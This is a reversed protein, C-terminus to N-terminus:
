SKPDGRAQMTEFEREVRDVTDIEHQIATAHLTLGVGGALALEELKAAVAAQNPRERLDQMWLQLRYVLAFHAGRPWCFAVRSQGIDVDAIDQAGTVTPM